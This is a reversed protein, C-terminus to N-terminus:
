TGSRIVQRLQHIGTRIEDPGLGGVRLILGARDPPNLCNSSVSLLGVGAKAAAHVVADTREEPEHKCWVLVQGGSGSGSVEVDAGLNEAIADLLVSRLAGIRKRTKRVHREFHGEEIFETLAEQTLTPPHRDALLKARTMPEVLPFPLVVYGIRLSPFLIRSFTGVYLVRGSRDLSHITELSRPGERLESDYDSEVIMSHHQEAWGLLKKRRSEPMVAGTPYQQSPTVVILRPRQVLRSLTAVQLAADDVPV